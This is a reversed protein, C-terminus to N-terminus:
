HGRNSRLLVILLVAIILLPLVKLIIEPIAKFFTIIGPSGSLITFLLGVISFVIAVYLLVRHSTEDLFLMFFSIGLILFISPIIVKSNDEFSYHNRIFIVIGVLFVITGLFLSGRRATGFSIFVLGLGYFALAYSLIEGNKLSTIGFANLLIAIFVFTIIYVFIWHHKDLFADIQHSYFNWKKHESWVPRRPFWCYSPKGPVLRKWLCCASRFNSLTIFYLLKKLKLVVGVAIISPLNHFGSQRRLGSFTFCM